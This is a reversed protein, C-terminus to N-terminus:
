LSKLVSVQTSCHPSIRLQTTDSNNITIYLCPCSILKKQAKNVQSIFLHTTKYWSFIRTAVAPHRPAKAVIIESSSNTLITFASVRPEYSM